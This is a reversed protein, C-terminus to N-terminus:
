KSEGDEGSDKKAATKKGASSSKGASVTKRKIPKHEVTIPKQPAATPEDTEPNPQEEAVAQEGATENAEPAPETKPEEKVEEIDKKEVVVTDDDDPKQKTAQRDVTAGFISPFIDDIVDRPKPDNNPIGPFIEQDATNKFDIFVDADNKDEYDMGFVAMKMRPPKPAVVPYKKALHAAIFTVAILVVAMVVFVILAWIWLKNLVITDPFNARDDILAPLFEDSEMARIMLTAAAAMKEGYDPYNAALTKLDDYGSFSVNDHEVGERDTLDMGDWSAGVINIIPIGGDHFCTFMGSHAWQYYPIGDLAYASTIQPSKSTVKYIDLGNAKSIDTLVSERKNDRADTYAYIHDGGIRQFETMLVTRARLEGTLYDNYFERAGADTIFGAGFFVITVDFDLEVEYMTLYSAIGLLTAVGTGNTLAAESRFTSANAYAQSYRNDYYAGLVINKTNEDRNAARYTAVVNQSKLNVLEGEITKFEVIEVDDYGYDATLVSQLYEAAVAEHETFTTRDEHGTLFSELIREMREPAVAYSPDNAEDVPAGYDSCAVFSFLAIVVCVILTILKFLKKM